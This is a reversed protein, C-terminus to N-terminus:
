PILRARYFRPSGNQLTTDVVTQPSNTLAIAPLPTWNGSAPLAPVSELAYNAGVVGTLELTPLGSRIMKLVPQVLKTVDLIQLGADGDALYALSGVVQIGVPAGSTDYSGVRVPKAPNSVDLIQLGADQHALYALNGVVHVDRAYGSTDYGGFRVPNAPASVDLIELGADGHALYALNGVVQVDNAHGSADYGGFRVPDAPNSVDLIEMGITDALYALNEVM